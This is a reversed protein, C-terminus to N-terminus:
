RELTGVVAIQREPCGARHSYFPSDGHRTCFSSATIQEVPIGAAVARAALAARIDANTVGDGAIGLGNLVEAGVEYCEGCIAPGFHVRLSPPRVGFHSGLLSLAAELVGAATGRWGAHVAAIVRARPAVIFVPVCDAVSVALLTGSERTAHGDADTAVLLGAPVQGHAHVLAGHVQRAHVIAQFGLGDRLAQWRRLVDGAPSGAFLSMDATNPTIGQVLWPMEEAWGAHVYLPGRAEESV